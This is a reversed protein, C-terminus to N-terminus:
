IARGRGAWYPERLRRKFIKGTDERPLSDSFEVVRPTKYAALNSRVHERVHEATLPAGAHPEVHAALVEGFERDPIGFVACDRVGALSQLCAEIEAPYINVGGSIVMDSRRDNLYLYGDADLYGVDGCSVLGDREIERRKAEDHEYTFDPWVDLWVYVEGSEGAPLERGERDFIKVVAGDLPRGVTGPHALWEESNCFVVPGTETGGYYEDVIPGLWDIMARKIDPPCPAAAHVIRRLSSVDYRARVREGLALLRVFMTPVMQVVTVGREEVIELFREADFKSMITMDMGRIAAALAYVNPATHYMPAPIVTREGSALKFLEGIMSQARERQEDTAPTRVVGKPRGTTGSTYIISTPAGEPPQEWPESAALWDGWDIAGSPSAAAGDAGGAGAAAGARPAAGEGDRDPAVVIRVLGTPVSAAIAPWLDAHVVLAKAGSDHLVHAIEDGRWHWNIPVASAGLPVTAISAELFELSNRLLLAVRDGAGVGLESLGRTARLARGFLEPYTSFRDGCRVGIQEASRMARITTLSTAGALV